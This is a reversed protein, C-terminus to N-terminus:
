NVKEKYLFKKQLTQAPKYTYYVFGDKIKLKSVYQYFLKKEAVIEGTINNIEKLYYYGNRLFLGYIKGNIEDM